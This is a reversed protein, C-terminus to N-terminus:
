DKEVSRTRALRKAYALVKCVPFGKDAGFFEVAVAVGGHAAVVVGVAVTYGDEDVVEIEEVRRPAWRGEFGFVDDHEGVGKAAGGTCSEVLFQLVDRAYFGDGDAAAGLVFGDLSHGAGFPTFHM